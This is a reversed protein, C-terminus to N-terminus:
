LVGAPHLATRNVSQGIHNIMRLSTSHFNNSQQKQVQQRVFDTHLPGPSISRIPAIIHPSTSSLSAVSTMTLWNPRRWSSAYASASASASAAIAVSSASVSTSTSTSAASLRPFRMRREVLGRSIGPLSPPLLPLRPLRLTRSNGLSSSLFPTLIALESLHPPSPLPISFYSSSSGPHPALPGIFARSPLLPPPSPPSHVLFSLAIRDPQPCKLVICTISGLTHLPLVSHLPNPSDLLDRTDLFSAV